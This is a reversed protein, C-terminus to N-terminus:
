KAEKWSNFFDYINMKFYHNFLEDMNKFSGMFINSLFMKFNDYGNIKILYLLFDFFYQRTELHEEYEPMIIKPDKKEYLIEEDKYKNMLLDLLNKENIKYDGINEINFCYQEFYDSLLHAIAENLFSIYCQKKSYEELDVNKGNAYDIFLQLLYKGIVQQYLHHVYEHLLVSELLFRDKTTKDEFKEKKFRIHIINPSNYVGTFNYKKFVEKLNNFFSNGEYIIVFSVSDPLLTTTGKKNLIDLFTYKIIPDGLNFANDADKFLCIRLSIEKIKENTINNLRLFPDIDKYYNEFFNLMFSSNLSKEFIFQNMQNLYINFNSGKSTILSNEFVKTKDTNSKTGITQCSLFSFLMISLLVVALIRKSKICREVM